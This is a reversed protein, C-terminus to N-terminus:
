QMLMANGAKLTLLSNNKNENRGNGHVILDYNWIKGEKKNYNKGEVENDREGQKAMDLISFLKYVCM